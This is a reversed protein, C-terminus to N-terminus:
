TTCLNDCHPLSHQSPTCLRACKDVASVRVILIYSATKVTFCIPLSIVPFTCCSTLMRTILVNVNASNSNQNTACSSGFLMLPLFQCTAATISRLLLHAARHDSIWPCDSPKGSHTRVFFQWLDIGGCEPRRNFSVLEKQQHRWAAASVAHRLPAEGISIHVEFYPGCWISWARIPNVRNNM